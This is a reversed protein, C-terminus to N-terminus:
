KTSPELDTALNDWLSSRGPCAGNLVAKWNGANLKKKLEIGQSEPIQKALWLIYTSSHVAQAESDEYSDDPISSCSHVLCLENNMFLSIDTVICTKCKSTRSSNSLDTAFHRIWCLSLFRRYLWLAERGVYHKILEKNWQLEEQWIHYIEADHDSSEDEQKHCSEELIWLMLRTRYHFCSSDAVHLRAWHGSKKLELLVQEKTMYSVLWCRHNWARYNMKSREAIKEVLESEKGLIEQMTSCKGAIMKIVWRRHCWAQESKPSFSLVLASLLLEEIFMPIHQKKSLILKRSNWATLFDCSLLLVAKSHKMVESEHSLFGDELSSNEVAKSQKVANM